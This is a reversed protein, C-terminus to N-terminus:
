GNHEKLSILLQKNFDLIENIKKSIIVEDSTESNYNFISKGCFLIKEPVILKDLHKNIMENSEGIHHNVSSDAILSLSAYQNILKEVYECLNEKPNKADTGVLSGKNCLLKKEVESLKIYSMPLKDESHEDLHKTTQTPPTNDFGVIYDKMKGIPRKEGCIECELFNWRYDKKWKHECVPKNTQTVMNVTHDKKWAEYDPCRNGNVDAGRGHCKTCYHSTFEQKGTSPKKNLIRKVPEKTKQKLGTNTPQNDILGTDNTKPKM